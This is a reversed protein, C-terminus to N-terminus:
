NQTIRQFFPLPENTRLLSGAAPLRAGWSNLASLSEAEIAAEPARKELSPTGAISLGRSLDRLVTHPLHRSRNKPGSLL